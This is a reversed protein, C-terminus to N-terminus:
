ILKKTKIVINMFIGDRLIRLKIKKKRTSSLIKYIKELTLNSAGIGNISVVQDGVKIGATEAPSDKMVYSVSYIPLNPFPTEVDIGSNNYIFPKRYSKNRRFCIRKNPYDIIINFRRLLDGGLSGNRNDKQIEIHLSSTDPFSAIPEKLLYHGIEINKVRGIRGYIDGNLGQGLINYINKQPTKIEENEQLWLALSAGTDVLLKVKMRNGDLDTMWTHIYPKQNILELPLCVTRKSRSYEYSEPKHFLIYNDTYNIETIYKEFITAGLIGNIKTGAKKSLYFMDQLLVNVKQQKIHINGIYIDNKYSTYAEVPEGEGLGHLKVKKAYKITLSDEKTLETILTTKLGTDLIFWLTDSDNIKAPIVINNNIQRFEIKTSNNTFLKKWFGPKGDQGYICLSLSFIFTILFLRKM